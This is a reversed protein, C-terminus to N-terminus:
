KSKVAFSDVVSCIFVKKGACKDYEVPLWSRLPEAYLRGDLFVWGTASPVYTLEIKTSSVITTDARGADEQSAFADSMGGVISAKVVAQIPNLMSDTKKVDWTTTEDLRYTAKRYKGPPLEKIESVAQQMDAAARKANGAFQVPTQASACLSVCLIAVVIPIRM